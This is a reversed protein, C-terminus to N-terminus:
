QRVGGTIAVAGIATIVVWGALMLWRAARNWAPNLVYDNVVTRLGLMGHAFTFGLLAIAYTRWGWVAWREAVFGIDIAHV